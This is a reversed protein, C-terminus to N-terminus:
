PGVLIRYIGPRLSVRILWEDVVLARIKQDVDDAGSGTVISPRAIVGAPTVLLSLELPRWNALGPGSWESVDMSIEPTVEEGRYIELRAARSKLSSGNATLDARGLGALQRPGTVIDMARLASDPPKPALVNRGAGQGPFSLAPPFLEAVSGGSQEDLTTPAGDAGLERRPMFLPTPDLLELRDRTGDARPIRDLQVIVLNPRGSTPSAGVTPSTIRVSAALTVMGIMALGLGAPFALNTRTGPPAGSVNPSTVEKTV